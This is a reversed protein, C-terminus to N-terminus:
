KGSRKLVRDIIGDCAEDLQLYTEKFAQIDYYWPDRVELDEGPRIVNMVLDAKALDHENRSFCALKAMHSSDMAYIHDFSDFDAASFLRARHFSIDIGEKLAVQQARQDPPDGVHFSEFCCSDIVARIKEKTAKKRLIGEALPSRCINGTCVFLIRTL